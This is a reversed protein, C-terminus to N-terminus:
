RGSRSTRRDNDWLRCQNADHPRRSITPPDHSLATFASRMLLRSCAGLPDLFSADFGASVFIMHPRFARLAPIIVRKMAASYAGIGSGPPLPINLNYGAGAGEGVVDVGGTGLPYLGDQHISIVLVDRRALFQSETGNGHHVDIDIVCIRPADTSCGLGGHLLMEEVAIAVNNFICFGHGVDREAHHGPPRVLAYANDVDGRAVARAAAVVGGASLECIEHGDPGIHLEHGIWGGGSRGAARVADVWARSHVRELMEDTVPEARLNVLVDGVGSVSVLNALRRKSEASEAAGRPQVNSTKGETGADHWFYREEVLWGTRASAGAALARASELSAIDRTYSAASM